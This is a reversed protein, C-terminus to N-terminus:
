MCQCGSARSVELGSQLANGVTETMEHAERMRDELASTVDEVNQISYGGQWAYVYVCIICGWLFVCFAVSVARVKEALEQLAQTSAKLSNVVLADLDSREFLALQREITRSWLCGLWVTCVHAHYGCRAVCVQTVRDFCLRLSCRTFFFFFLSLIYWLTNETVKADRIISKREM